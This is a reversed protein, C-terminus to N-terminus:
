GERLEYGTVTGSSDFRLELTGTNIGHNTSGMYYYGPQGGSPPGLLAEVESRSMGVLDHQRVLSHRMRWRSCGAGLEDHDFTRWCERDFPEPLLFDRADGGGVFVLVGGVYLAVLAGAAVVFRRVISAPGSTM